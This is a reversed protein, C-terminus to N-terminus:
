YVCDRQDDIILGDEILADTCIVWPTKSMYYSEPIEGKCHGTYRGSSDPEDRYDIVCSRSSCDKAGSCKKDKEQDFKVYCGCFM